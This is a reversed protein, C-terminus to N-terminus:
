SIKILVFKSIAVINDISVLCKYKPADLQDERTMRALLQLSVLNSVQFNDIIQLSM